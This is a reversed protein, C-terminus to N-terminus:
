RKMLELVRGLRKALWIVPAFFLRPGEKMGVWFGSWFETMSYRALTLRDASSVEM